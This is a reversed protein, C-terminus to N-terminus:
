RSSLGVPRRCVPERARPDAQPARGEGRKASVAVVPRAVSASRERTRGRPNHLDVCAIRRDRDLGPRPAPREDGRAHEVALAPLRPSLDDPREGCRAAPVREVLQAIRSTPPTRAATTPWTPPPTLATQAGCTPSEQCRGRAPREPSTSSATTGSEDGSSTPIEVRTSLGTSSPRGATRPGASSGLVRDRRYEISECALISSAKESARSWRAVAALFARQQEPRLRRWEADFRRTWEYTPM